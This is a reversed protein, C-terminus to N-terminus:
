KKPPFKKLLDRVAGDLRQRREAQSRQLDVEAQAAGRWVHDKGNAAFADILLTGVPFARM